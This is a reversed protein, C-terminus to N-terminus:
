SAPAFTWGALSTPIPLRSIDLGCAAKYARDQTLLRLGQEATDCTGLLADDLLVAFCERQALRTRAIRFVGQPTDCLWHGNM